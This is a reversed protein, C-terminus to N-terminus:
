LPNEERARRLTEKALLEEEVEDAGEAADRPRREQRRAPRLGLAAQQDWISDHRKAWRQRREQVKEAPASGLWKSRLIRRIAEASVKFQQALVPTSYTIPDSQHMNRIGLMADPSLKRRPNWGDDGFKTALAQKQVAWDPLDQKPTPTMDIDINRPPKSSGRAPSSREIGVRPRAKRTSTDKRKKEKLTERAESDLTPNQDTSSETKAQKLSRKLSAKSQEMSSGPEREVSHM